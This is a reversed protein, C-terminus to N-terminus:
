LRYRARNNPTSATCAQPLVHGLQRVSQDVYKGDVSVYVSRNKSIVRVRDQEQERVIVSQHSHDTFRGNAM